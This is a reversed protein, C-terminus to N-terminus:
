SYGNENQFLALKAPGFPSYNPDATTGHNTDEDYKDHAQQTQTERIAIEELARETTLGLVKEIIGNFGGKHEWKGDYNGYYGEKIIKVHGVEHNALALTFRFWERLEAPNLQGSPNGPFLINVDIRLLSDCDIMDQKSYNSQLEPPDSKTYAWFIKDDENEPFMDKYTASYWFELAPLGKLISGYKPFPLLDIDGRYYEFQKDGCDPKVHIQATRMQNDFCETLNPPCYLVKTQFSVEYFGAEKPLYYFIGKAPNRTDSIYVSGQPGDTMNCTVIMNSDTGNCNVSFTVPEGEKVCFNSQCSQPDVTLFDYESNNAFSILSKENYYRSESSGQNLIDQNLNLSHAIHSGNDPTVDPGFSGYTIEVLL